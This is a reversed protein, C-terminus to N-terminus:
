TAHSHAKSHEIKSIIQKTNKKTFVIGPPLPATCYSATSYDVIDNYLKGVIEMNELSSLSIIENLTINEFDSWVGMGIAEKRQEAFRQCKPVDVAELAHKRNM